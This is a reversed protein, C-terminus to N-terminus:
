QAFRRYINPMGEAVRLPPKDKSVKAFGRSVIPTETPKKAGLHAAEVRVAKALDAVQQRTEVLHHARCILEGDETTLKRKAKDSDAVLADMRVHNVELGKTCGCRTGNEVRECTPVSNVCARLIIALRVGKPFNQRNSM